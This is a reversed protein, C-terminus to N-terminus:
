ETCSAANEHLQRWAKEGYTKGADKHHMWVATNVHGSEDTMQKLRHDKIVLGKFSRVSLAYDLYLTTPKLIVVFSSSFSSLFNLPPM